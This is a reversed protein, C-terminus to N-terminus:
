LGHVVLSAAAVLPGLVVAVLLWVGICDSACPLRSLLAAALSSGCTAVFLRHAAVFVWLLWLPPPYFLISTYLLQTNTLDKSSYVSSYHTASVPNPGLKAQGWFWHTLSSAM